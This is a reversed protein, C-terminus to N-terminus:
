CCGCFDKCAKALGKLSDVKEPDKPTVNIQVGNATEKVDCNFRECISKMDMGCCNSM